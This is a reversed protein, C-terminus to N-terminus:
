PRPKWRLLLGLTLNFLERDENYFTQLERLAKARVAPDAKTSDDVGLLTQLAMTMMERPDGDYEKGFYPHIYHDKRTKEDDRYLSGPLLDKLNELAEGVTRHRHLAVFYENLDPLASQLWHASEHIATAYAHASKPNLTIISIFGDYDYNGREATGIKAALPITGLAKKVWTRPFAATAVRVLAGATRDEITATAM